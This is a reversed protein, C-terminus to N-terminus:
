ELKALAEAAAADLESKGCICGDDGCLAYCQRTHISRTRYADLADLADALAIIHAPSVHTVFRLAAQRRMESTLKAVNM